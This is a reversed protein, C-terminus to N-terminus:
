TTRNPGGPYRAWHTIEAFTDEEFGNEEDPYRAYWRGSEHLGGEGVWDKEPWYVLLRVPIEEMLYDEVKHWYIIEKEGTHKGFHKIVRRCKPCICYVGVDINLTEPIGNFGCEACNIEM